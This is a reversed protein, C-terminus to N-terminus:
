DRGREVESTATTTSTRGLGAPRRVHLRVRRRAAAGPPADALLGRPRCPPRSSVPRRASTPWARATRRAAHAPDRGHTSAAGGDAGRRALARVSVVDVPDDVPRPRVHARARGRLRGRADAVDTEGAAVPVPLEYAQGAYRLDAYRTVAVPRRRRTSTRGRRPRSSASPASRAAGPHDDDGRLMLTRVLEHETDSFLLGLASFVGPAPPVLVRSMGLRRAIEVGDAARQRRVRVLTFDRPDRGRYTTVAKVARTMTAVALQLVGHRGGRRVTRAADGRRARAGSAGAGPRGHDRRWRARPTSTASCSSRM